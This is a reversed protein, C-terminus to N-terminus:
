KLSDTFQIRVDATSAPLRNNELVRVPQIGLVAVAVPIRQILHDAVVMKRAIDVLKSKPVCLLAVIDVHVVVRVATFGIGPGAPSTYQVTVFDVIYESLWQVLVQRVRFLLLLETSPHHSVPAVKRSRPSHVFSEHRRLHRLCTRNCFGWDLTDRRYERTASACTLLCTRSATPWLHSHSRFLVLTAVTHKRSSTCAM